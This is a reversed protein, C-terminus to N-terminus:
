NGTIHRLKQLCRREWNNHEIKNTSTLAKKELSGTAERLKNEEIFEDVKAQHNRTQTLIEKETIEEKTIFAKIITPTSKKKMM